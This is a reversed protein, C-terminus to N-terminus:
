VVSKRDIYILLPYKNNKDYKPPYFMGIRLGQNQVKKYVLIEDASHRNIYSDYKMDLRMLNHTYVM